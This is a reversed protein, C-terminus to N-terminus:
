VTRTRRPVHAPERFVNLAWFAPAAATMMMLLTGPAGTARPLPPSATVIGAKMIEWSSPAASRPSILGFAGGNLETVTLAVM